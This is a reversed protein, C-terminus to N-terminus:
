ISCAGIGDEGEEDGEERACWAEARGYGGNVGVFGSGWWWQKMKEPSVAGGNSTSWLRRGEGGWRRGSHGCGTWIRLGRGKEEKDGVLVM